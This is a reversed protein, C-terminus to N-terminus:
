QFVNISAAVMTLTVDTQETRQFPCSLPPPYRNVGVCRNYRLHTRRHLYDTYNNNNIHM